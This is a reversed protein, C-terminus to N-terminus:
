IEKFYNAVREIVVPPIEHAGPFTLLSGKMGAQTFLSELQSAGRISLVMDNKGHSLFFKKGTRSPAKSRWEIKNILAGSLIVLGKPAEPANVYLDTALMSGQSFGGLIIQNWPTKLATIM